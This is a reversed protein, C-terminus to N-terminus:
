DIYRATMRRLSVYARQLSLVLREIESESLESEPVYELWAIQNKVMETAQYWSPKGDSYVTAMFEAQLETATPLDKTANAM